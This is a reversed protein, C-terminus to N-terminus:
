KGASTTYAEDSDKTKSQKANSKAPAVAKKPPM